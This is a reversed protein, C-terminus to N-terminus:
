SPSYALRDWVEDEVGGDPPGRDIQRWHDALERESPYYTPHGAHPDFQRRTVDVSSGGALQVLRHRESAMTRPGPNDPETRHGRVWVPSAGIGKACLFEVLGDTAIKCQNDAGCPRALGPYSRLFEDVQDRMASLIFRTDLM